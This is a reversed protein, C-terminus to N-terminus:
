EIYFFLSEVLSCLVCIGCSPKMLGGRNCLSLFEQEKPEGSEETEPILSENNNSLMKVFLRVLQLTYPLKM